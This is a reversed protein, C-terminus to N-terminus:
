IGQRNRELALSSISMKGADRAALPPYTVYSQDSFSLHIYAMRPLYESKMILSVCMALTARM